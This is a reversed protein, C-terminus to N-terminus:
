EPRARLSVSKVGYRQCASQARDSTFEYEPNERIEVDAFGPTEVTEAYDDIQMAGGICAAWLDVDSKIRDPM